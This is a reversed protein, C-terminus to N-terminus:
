HEREIQQLIQLSLLLLLLLLLLSYFLLLALGLSVFLINRLSSVSCLSLYCICVIGVIRHSLLGYLM